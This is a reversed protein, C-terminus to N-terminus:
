RCDASQQAILHSEPLAEFDPNQHPLPMEAPTLTSRDILSHVPLRKIMHPDTETQLHPKETNMATTATERYPPLPRLLETRANPVRILYLM